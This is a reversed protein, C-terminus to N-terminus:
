SAELLLFRIPKAPELEAELATADLAGPTDVRLWFRDVSATEFGPIEFVPDWLKVLRGLVLVGFFATAASALVGMEFTIPGFALPMHPPRGGVNLPYLYAVTYWQLGYALGAGLCAAVFVAIPLRSPRLALAERVEESSYPTYADLELEPHARLTRAAAALAEADPFEVLLSTKM